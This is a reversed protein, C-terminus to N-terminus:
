QIQSDIQVYNKSNLKDRDNNDNYNLSQGDMVHYNINAQQQHAFSQCQKLQIGHQSLHDQLHNQNTQQQQSQSQHQTHLQSQNQHQQEQSVVEASYGSQHVYNCNSENLNIAKSKSHYKVDNEFNIQTNCPYRNEQQQQDNNQDDLRNAFREITGVSLGNTTPSKSQYKGSNTITLSQSPSHSKHDNQAKAAKIMELLTSM